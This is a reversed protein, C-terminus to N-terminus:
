LTSSVCLELVVIKNQISLLTRSWTRIKGHRSPSVLYGSTAAQKVRFTDFIWKVARHPLDKHNTIICGITEDCAVNVCTRAKLVQLHCSKGLREECNNSEGKDVDRKLSGSSSRQVPYFGKPTGNTTHQDPGKWRVLYETEKKGTETMFYLSRARGYFFYWNM